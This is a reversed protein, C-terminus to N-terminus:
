HDRRSRWDPPQAPPGTSRRITGLLDQATVIGVVRHHDLVLVPATASVAAHELLDTVLEDPRAPVARDVPLAIDRVRTTPRRAAPVARLAPGTVYGTARGDLDVLPVVPQNAARPATDTLFAAVSQWDQGIVPPRMIEAVRVGRLARFLRARRIEAAAASTVFWGILALWLGATSGAVVEVLGLAILVAGVVQGCRGAVQAARERDGRIRWVVAQLIRGGDLPAAPLLNFAGLLLNAWGAWALTAAILSWHLADHALVAAGLFLGGLLLSALPGVAAVRGETRATTAQDMRTVGGLAFVTVDKVEIDARRATLAHAGEHVVLSAMLVLAGLVAWVAYAATSHGPSWAPLTGSGLGVSLLAILLPASWHLRLPVGAIRGISVSGKM